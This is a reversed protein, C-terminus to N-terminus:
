NGGLTAGLGADIFLSTTSSKYKMASRRMMLDASCIYICLVDHFTLSSEGSVIPACPPHQTVSNANLRCLRSQPPRSWFSLSHIFGSVLRSSLCDLGLSVQHRHANASFGLDSWTQFFWFSVLLGFWVRKLLVYDSQKIKFSIFVWYRFRKSLFTKNELPVYYIKLFTCFAFFVSWKMVNDWSCNVTWYM